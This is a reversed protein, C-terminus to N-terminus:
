HPQKDVLGPKASFVGRWWRTLDWGRPRPLEQGWDRGQVSEKWGGLICQVGRSKGQGCWPAWVEELSGESRHRWAEASRPCCLAPGQAARHLALDPSPPAATRSGGGCDRSPEQQTPHAEPDCVLSQEM